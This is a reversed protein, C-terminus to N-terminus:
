KPSVILLENLGTYRCDVHVWTETDAEITTLGVAKFLPWNRKIDDRVEEPFMGQIKPDIARGFRHQSLEAGISCSPVRFGSNIYNGKNLYDNIIIPLRYRDRMFQAIAIIKPDVFWIGKEPYKELVEPPIFEGLFFDKSVKM